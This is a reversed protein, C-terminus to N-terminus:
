DSEQFKIFNASKWMRKGVKIPKQPDSGVYLIKVHDTFHCQDCKEQRFFLFGYSRYEVFNSAFIGIKSTTGFDM